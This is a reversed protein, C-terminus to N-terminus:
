SSPLEDGEHHQGDPARFDPGRSWPPRGTRLTERGRGVARWRGGPGAGPSSVAHRARGARAAGLLPRPWPRPPWCDPVGSRDARGRTRM